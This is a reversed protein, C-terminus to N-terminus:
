KVVGNKKLVAQEIVRAFKMERQAAKPSGFMQELEDDTLLQPQQTQPDKDCVPETWDCHPCWKGGLSGLYEGCDTNQCYLYSM